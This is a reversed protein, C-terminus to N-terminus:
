LCVSIVQDHISQLNPVDLCSSCCKLRTLVQLCFCLSSPADLHREHIRPLYASLLRTSTASDECKLQSDQFTRVDSRKSCSRSSFGVCASFELPDFDAIRCGFDDFNGSGMGLSGPVYEVAWTGVSLTQAVEGM